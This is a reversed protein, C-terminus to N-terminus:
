DPANLVELLRLLQTPIFLRGREIGRRHAELYGSNVPTAPGFSFWPPFFISSTDSGLKPASSFTASQSTISLLQIVIPPRTRAKSCANAAICPAASATATLEQVAARCKASSASSM